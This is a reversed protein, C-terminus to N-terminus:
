RGALRYIESGALLFAGVGYVETSDAPFKKPDAGIPQVHTLKGDAEVCAVLSAWAKEAAPAYKARDLLGNNVGWAFAYCDFGTGSTEKLPYSAADLLSSRWMGDPQQVALLSAAMERFQQEFRPRAAHNKPLDQMVRVLGAMVWGNGRSWFVKKGNAERKDFYSSDRFYLHEDQDYLYASTKWWHDIMYDAYVQKGTAISLRLWAPPAMFLADCWSWHDLHGPNKKADFDLNEGKPNAMVFDFGAITAAIMKPDKHQFYLELYTQAVAHDDAHYPRGGLKWANGEAMKMMADHFRPSPSIQALAMMGTYGAAQTWETPKHVSPHALQWDAAREMLGLVERQRPNPGPSLCSTLLASCLAAFLLPLRM